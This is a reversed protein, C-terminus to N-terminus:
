SYQYEVLLTLVEDETGKAIIAAWPEGVHEADLYYGVRLDPRGDEREARRCEAMDLVLVYIQHRHRLAIGVCCEHELEQISQHSQSLCVKPLEIFLGDLVVKHQHVLQEVLNEIESIGL